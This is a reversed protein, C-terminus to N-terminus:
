HRQMADHTAYVSAPATEETYKSDDSALFLVTDAVDEPETGEVPLMNTFMGALREYSAIGAGFGAQM